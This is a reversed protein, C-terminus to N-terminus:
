RSFLVNQKYVILMHLFTKRFPVRSSQGGARPCLHGPFSALRATAKSNGEAEAAWFHIGVLFGGSSGDACCARVAGEVEENPLFGSM